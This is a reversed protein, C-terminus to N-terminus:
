SGEGGQRQLKELARAAARAEALKKRDGYGEGLVRGQVRCCASFRPSHGAGLDQVSYEPLGWGRAQTLEQLASKADRGDEVSVGELLPQWARLVLSRATEWGGDLFVAGIVAEVANAAISPSKLRGKESEGAGVRIARALLWSEAVRLLAERRVVSARMRSLVGEDAESFRQHLHEAIVLGLVADGLFELREMHVPAASRHTLARELLSLDHFRYGLRGQLVATQEAM